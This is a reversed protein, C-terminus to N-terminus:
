ATVYRALDLLTRGMADPKVGLEELPANVQNVWFTNLGFSKAGAADWGGFAAFVISERSLNFAVEAMQYARPDPKYAKVRDTSLVHEFLDSIGASQSNTMLIKPTLNSVYALRIGAQRMSKLAEISDPWPKLNLFADMFKDRADAKLEIKAAKCVFVLADDLIQWFDVYTQNLTRLWCYEFIRVRWATALQSGKGPFYEDIVADVSLPNFITFADFGVAKIKGAITQAFADTGLVKAIGGTAATAGAIMLLGRRTTTKPEIQLTM